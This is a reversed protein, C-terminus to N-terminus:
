ASATLSSSSPCPLAGAEAEVSETRAATSEFSGPVQPCGLGETGYRSLDPGNQVPSPCFTAGGGNGGRGSNGPHAVYFNHNQENRRGDNRLHHALDVVAFDRSVPCRSYGYTCGVSASALFGQRGQLAPRAVTLGAPTSQTQGGMTRLNCRRSNVSQGRAPGYAGEASRVRIGRM